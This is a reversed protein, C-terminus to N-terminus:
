NSQFLSLSLSLVLLSLSLSLDISDIQARINISKYYILYLQLHLNNNLYSLYSASCYLLPIFVLSASAVINLTGIIGTFTCTSNELYRIYLM